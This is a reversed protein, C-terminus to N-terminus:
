LLANELDKALVSLDCDRLCEIFTAWNVPQRTGAAGGVWQHLVETCAATCSKTNDHEIIKVAASSFQLIYALEEWQPAVQEIVKM